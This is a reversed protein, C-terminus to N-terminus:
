EASKLASEIMLVMEDNRVARETDPPVKAEHHRQYAMFQEACKRLAGKLGEIIGAPGKSHAAAKAAAKVGKFKPNDRRSGAPDVFLRFRKCGTAADMAKQPAGDPTDNSGAYVLVAGEDGDGPYGVILLQNGKM